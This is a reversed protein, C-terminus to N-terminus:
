IPLILRGYSKRDKTRRIVLGVPWGGGSYYKESIEISFPQRHSVQSPLCIHHMLRAFVQAYVEWLRPM